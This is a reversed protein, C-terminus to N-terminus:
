GGAQRMHKELARKMLVSIPLLVMRGLWSKPVMRMSRTVETGGASPRFEWAEIFHDALYRLPPQFEVFKVAIRQPVDWTIIEEVHTSGDTNYVHIRSGIVGPTKSAYEARRVGPLIFYGTFEPWRDTDLFEACLEQPSKRTRATVRIEIPKIM